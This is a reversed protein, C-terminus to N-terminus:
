SPVGAGAIPRRPSKLDARAAKGGFAGGFGGCFLQRPEGAMDVDRRSDRSNEVCLRPIWKRMFPTDEVTKWAYVPYM